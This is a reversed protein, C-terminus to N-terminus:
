RYPITSDKQQSCEARATKLFEILEDICEGTFTSNIKLYFVSGSALSTPAVGRQYELKAGYKGISVSGSNPDLYVTNAPPQGFVFKTM